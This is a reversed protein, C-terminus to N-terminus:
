CVNVGSYLRSRLLLVLPNALVGQDACIRMHATNGQLLVGEGM